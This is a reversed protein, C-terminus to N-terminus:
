GALFLAVSKLEIWPDSDRSKVELGKSLKDIEACVLLANKLKNISLRRAARKMPETAFVGKVFRQGQSMGTALKILQRIESTLMALVLPLAEDQAALGDIIRVVRDSEGNHMAEFLTSLDFRASDVVARRIAELDLEGEPACLALKEVEQAAAFLNGEVLDAFYELAEPTASQKNRAMRRSLWRPLARRDVGSCDIVVCAGQLAKWWAAKSDRWDPPPVSFITTVGNVPAKVFREIAEEGGRKGPRPQALRVELIKKSCFLGGDSATMQLERWDSGASMELVARDDHGDERLLARLADAAEIMLFGETGTILWFPAPVGDKMTERFAKEVNDSTYNM